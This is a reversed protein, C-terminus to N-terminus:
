LQAPASRQPALRSGGPVWSAPPESAEALRDPGTRFVEPAVVSQPVQMAVSNSMLGLSGDWRKEKGVEYRRGIDNEGRLMDTGSCGVDGM